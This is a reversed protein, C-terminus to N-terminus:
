FKFNQYWQNNSGYTYIWNNRADLSQKNKVSQISRTKWDFVFKQTDFGNSTKIVARNGILDLYRKSSMKSVIHFPTGVKLGWDAVFDGDEPDKDEEDAYLITWKQGENTNKKYAIVNQNEADKSGSVDIVKEGRENIIYNGKLRWM